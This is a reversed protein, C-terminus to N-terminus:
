PTAPLNIIDSKLTTLISYLPLASTRSRHVTPHINPTWCPEYAAYWFISHMNM